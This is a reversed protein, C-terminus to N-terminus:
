SENVGGAKHSREAGGVAGAACHSRWQRRGAYYITSFAYHVESIEELRDRRVAAALVRSGGRAPDVVAGGAVLGRVQGCGSKVQWLARFLCGFSVPVGWYIGQM